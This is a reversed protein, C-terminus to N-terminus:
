CDACCEAAPGTAISHQTIGSQPCLSPSVKTACNSHDLLVEIALVSALRRALSQSWKWAIFLCQKVFMNIDAAASGCQQDLASTLRNRAHFRLCDHPV